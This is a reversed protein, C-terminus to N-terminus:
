KQPVKLVRDRFKQNLYKSLEFGGFFLSTYFLDGLITNRFFPIAASYSDLLGQFNHSYWSHPSAWVGFNTILFFLFSAFLSASFVTGLNKHSRLWLGVLGVLVFGGYVYFIVSGYYGSIFFDSILMASLPVVLADRRRLSAGGFLALASIPAFNPPHPVLRSLVALVIFAYAM